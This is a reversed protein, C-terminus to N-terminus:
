HILKESVDNDVEDIELNSRLKMYQYLNNSTIGSRLANKMLEKFMKNKDLNEELNNMKDEKICYVIILLKIYKM